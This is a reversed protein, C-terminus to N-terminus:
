RQDEKTRADLSAGQCNASVAVTAITGVIDGLPTHETSASNLFRGKACRVASM